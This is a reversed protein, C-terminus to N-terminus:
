QIPAVKADSWGVKYSQQLAVIADDITAKNTTAKLISLAADFGVSVVLKLFAAQLEPSM